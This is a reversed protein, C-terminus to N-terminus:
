LQIRCRGRQRRVQTVDVWGDINCQGFDNDGMAVVTGDSKLGVTHFSGAVVMPICRPEDGAGGSGYGVIGAILAVVILLIGLRAV